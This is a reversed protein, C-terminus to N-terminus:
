KRAAHQRPRDVKGDHNLDHQRNHSERGIAHSQHDMARNLRHHEQPTVKGDAKAKENMARLREERAHLRASEQQTLQGSKEGQAIRADQRALRQEITAREKAAAPPTTGQALVPLALLSAAAIVACRVIKM